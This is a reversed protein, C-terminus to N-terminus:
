VDAGAAWGERNWSRGRRGRELEVTLRRDDGRWVQVGTAGLVHALMPAGDQWDTFRQGLVGRVRLLDATPTCTVRGLRPMRGDPALGAVTVATRWRRRYLWVSRWCGLLWLRARQRAPDPAWWAFVQGGAGVVVVSTVLAARHEVWLWLVVGAACLAGAARPHRVAAAALRAVQLLLWAVPLAWGFLGAAVRLRWRDLLVTPLPRRTVPEGRDDVPEGNPLEHELCFPVGPLWAGVSQLLM